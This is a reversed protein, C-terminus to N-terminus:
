GKTPTVCEVTTEGVKDANDTAYAVYFSDQRSDSSEMVYSKSYLDVEFRKEFTVTMDVFGAGEIEDRLYEFLEDADGKIANTIESKSPRDRLSHLWTSSMREARGSITVHQLRPMM